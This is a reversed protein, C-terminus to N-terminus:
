FIYDSFAFFEVISLFCQYTFFLGSNNCYFLHLVSPWNLASAIYTPLKLNPCIKDLYHYLM